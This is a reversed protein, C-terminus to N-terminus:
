SDNKTNMLTRSNIRHLQRPKIILGDDKIFQSQKQSSESSTTQQTPTLSAPFSLSSESRSPLELIPQPISIPKRLSKPQSTVQPIQLHNTSLLSSISSLPTGTGSEDISRAYNSEPVIISDLEVETPITEKEFSKGFYGLIMEIHDAATRRKTQINRKQKSSKKKHVFCLYSCYMITGFLIIAIGSIIVIFMKTSDNNSSEDVDVADRKNLTIQDNLPLMKEDISLTGSKFTTDISWTTINLITIDNLPDVTPKNEFTIMLQKGAINTKHFYREVSNIIKPQSWVWISTDLVALPQSLNVDSTGGYIIIKNDSTLIASHASRPSPIDGTAMINQWENVDINYVWIESMPVFISDNTRGGLVVMRGDPLITASHLTRSRPGYTFNQKIWNNGWNDSNTNSIYIDKSYDKNRFKGGFIVFLGNYTMSCSYDELNFPSEDFLEWNHNQIDYKGFITENENEDTWQSQRGGFFYIKNNRIHFANYYQFSPFESEILVKSSNIIDSSNQFINKIFEDDTETM